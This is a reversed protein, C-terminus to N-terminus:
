YIVIASPEVPCKEECLGCGTCRNKIVFPKKIGEIIQVDIARDPIPCHEECVLCGVNYRWALCRDKHIYAIGLRWSHKQKKTLKRIAGTPCLRSCDVCDYVCHAIRYVLRPTWLGEIGEEFLSPQIMNTPCVKMCVGCRICKKFLEGTSLVGPPRVLKSKYIKLRIFPISIIATILSILLYRRSLVIKQPRNLNPMNFKFNIAKNKCVTLCRLCVICETLAIKCRNFCNNCRNCKNINIRRHLITYRSICSYLAGLPCVNACWFREKLLELLIIISFIIM